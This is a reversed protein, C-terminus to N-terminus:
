KMLDKWIRKHAMASNEACRERFTRPPKPAAPIKRTESDAERLARDMEEETLDKGLVADWFGM